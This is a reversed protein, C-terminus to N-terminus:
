YILFKKDSLHIQVRTPLVYEDFLVISISIGCPETIAGGIRNLM